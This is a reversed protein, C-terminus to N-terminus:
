SLTRVAVSAPHWLPPTVFLDGGAVMFRVCTSYLLFYPGLYHLTIFLLSFVAVLYLLTTYLLSFVAVLYPFPLFFLLGGALKIVIPAMGNWCSSNRKCRLKGSKGTQNRDQTTLMQLNTIFFHTGLPLYHKVTHLNERM